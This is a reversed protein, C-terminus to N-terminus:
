RNVDFLAAANLLETLSSPKDRNTELSAGPFLAAHVCRRMILKNARDFRILARQSHSRM